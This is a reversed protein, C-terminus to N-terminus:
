EFYTVESDELVGELCTVRSKTMALFINKFVIRLDFARYYLHNLAVAELIPLSWNWVVNQHLLREYINSVLASSAAVAQLFGM